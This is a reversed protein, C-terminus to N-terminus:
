TRLVSLFVRYITGHKDIHYAYLDTILSFVQDLTVQKLDLSITGSVEPHIAVSFPTDKVLGAFFSVADVGSANIDYKEAELGADSSTNLGNGLLMSSVSDPIDELKTDKQQLKAKAIENALHSEVHSTQKGSCALLLFCVLVCSAYLKLKYFSM